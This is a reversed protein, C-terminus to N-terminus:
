VKIVSSFRSFWNIIRGKQDEHGFLVLPSRNLIIKLDFVSDIIYMTNRGIAFKDLYDNRYNYSAFAGKYGAERVAKKVREDYLGFPYIFYDINRCLMTELERKSDVVEITLERSNLKRLDRHTKSHSIIEFGRESMEKLQAPNMHKFKNVGRDWLNRKGVYDSIPCLVGTFGYKKMVPFAKLYINEYADDFFILINKEHVNEISETIGRTTYGEEHLCKMFSEFQSTTNFTGGLEPTDSIKHFSIIKPLNGNPSKHKIFWYLWGFVYLAPILLILYIPLNFGGELGSTNERKKKM